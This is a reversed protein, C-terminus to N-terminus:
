NAGNAESTAPSDVSAPTSVAKAPAKKAAAKKTAAKKAVTKKAAAGKSAAAQKPAAVKKAAKKAPVSVASSSVKATRVAKKSAAKAKTTAKRAVRKAANEPPAAPAESSTVKSDAEVIRFKDRNKASAIWAPPKGFGTWTKGSKPDRFKPVGAGARKARSQKAPTGKGAVAAKASKAAKSVRAGLHEMTVGLSTMLSRVKDVSSKMEVQTLRAAKAELAAIQRKIDSVTLKAM